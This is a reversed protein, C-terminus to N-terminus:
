EPSPLELDEPLDPTILEGTEADYIRRPGSPETHRVREIWTTYDFDPSWEETHCKRCVSEAVERSFTIGTPDQYPLLSSPDLHEKEIKRQRVHEAAPGHCAECTVGTLHSDRYPDEMGTPAGWGTTHCALCGPDARQQGVLVDWATSHRVYTPEGRIALHCEDCFSAGVYGSLVDVLEPAQPRQFPNTPDQLFESRREVMELKYDTLLQTISSLTPVTSNLEVRIVEEATVVGDPTFDLRMRGLYKGAGGMTVLQGGGELQTSSVGPGPVLDTGQIVLDFGPVEAMIARIQEFGMDALLVVFDVGERDFEEMVARLPPIPEVVRAMETAGVPQIGQMTIGTIGVRIGGIERILKTRTAPLNMEDVLNASVLMGGSLADWERLQSVPQVSERIGLNVAQYGMLACAKLIWGATFRDFGTNGGAFSGADLTLQPYPSEQALVGGRRSLGGLPIRCGCPFLEGATNASYNVMLHAPFRGAQNDGKCGALLGALFLGTMVAAAISRM